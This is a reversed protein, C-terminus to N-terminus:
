CAAPGYLNARVVNVRLAHLWWPFRTGPVLSCAALLLRWAIWLKL